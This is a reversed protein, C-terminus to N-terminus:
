GKYEGCWDDTRTIPQCDVSKTAKGDGVPPYRRCKVRESVAEGHGCNGCNKIKVAKKAM